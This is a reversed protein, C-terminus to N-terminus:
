KPQWKKSICSSCWVTLGKFYLLLIYKSLVINLLGFNYLTDDISLQQHYLFLHLERQFSETLYKFRYNERLYYFVEASAKLQASSILKHILNTKERENNEQLTSSLILWFTWMNTIKHLELFISVPFPRRGGRPGTWGCLRATKPQLFGFAHPLLLPQNHVHNIWVHCPLRM